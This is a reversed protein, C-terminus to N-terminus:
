KFGDVTSVLPYVIESFLSQNQCGVRSCARSIKAFGGDGWTTGWSNQIIWYHNGNLSNYGVLLVVHDGRPKKSTKPGYYIGEGIHSRLEDTAQLSVIVPGTDVLKILEEENVETISVLDEIKLVPVEKRMIKRACPDKKNTRKACECDEKRIVGENKLFSRIEKFNKVAGQAKKKEISDFLHKDSLSIDLGFLIKVRAELSKNTSHVWCTEKNGQNTVEKYVAGETKSWDRSYYKAGRVDPPYHPDCSTLRVTNATVNEVKSKKKGGKSKKDNSGGYQQSDGEM